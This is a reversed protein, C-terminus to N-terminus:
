RLPFRGGLQGITMRRSCCFSRHENVQSLHLFPNHNKFCRQAHQGDRRQRSSRDARLRQRVPRDRPRVVGMGNAQTRVIPIREHQVNIAVRSRRMAAETQRDADLGGRLPRGNRRHTPELVEIQTARDAAEIM